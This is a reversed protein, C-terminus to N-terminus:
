YLRSAYTQAGSVKRAEILDYPQSSSSVQIKHLIEWRKNNAQRIVENVKKQSGWFAQKTGTYISGHGQPVM